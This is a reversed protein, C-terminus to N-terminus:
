ISHIVSTTVRLFPSTLGGEGLHVGELAEDLVDGVLRRALKFNITNEM